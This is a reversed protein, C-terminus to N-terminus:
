EFDYVGSAAMKDNTTLMGQLWLQLPSHNGETRLRHRNYAQRFIELNANIHPLFAYYYKWILLSAHYSPM